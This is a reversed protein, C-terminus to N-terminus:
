WLFGEPLSLDISALALGPSQTPHRCSRVPSSDRQKGNKVRRHAKKHKLMEYTAEQRQYAERKNRQTKIELTQTNQIYM